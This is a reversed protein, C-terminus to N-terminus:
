AQMAMARAVGFVLVIRSSWRAAKALARLPVEGLTETTRKGGDSAVAALAWAVVCGYLADGSSASVAVGLAAAGYASAFAVALQTDVGCTKAVFSNLNVLAACSIWGFHLSLPAHTTWFEASSMANAASRLVRHAGGLAFAEAILLASSVWFHRPKRAWPRFAACWLGQFGCALAFWPAVDRGAAGDTTTLARVVLAMEGAYIVGWIAFAWGAPTFLSRYESDLPIAHEKTASEDDENEKKDKARARRAERVRKQMEDDIRGPISVTAVNFAFAAATTLQWPRLGAISHIAADTIRRM